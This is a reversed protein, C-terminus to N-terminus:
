QFLRTRLRQAWGVPYGLMKALDGVLRILPVLALAFAQDRLSRAAIQPGL